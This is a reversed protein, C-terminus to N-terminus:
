LSASGTKGESVPGVQVLILANSCLNSPLEIEGRDIRRVARPPATRGM